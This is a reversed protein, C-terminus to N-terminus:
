WDILVLIKSNFHSSIGERKSKCWGLTPDNLLESTQACIQVGRHLFVFGAKDWHQAPVASHSLWVVVATCLKLLIPVSIDNLGMGLLVGLHARYFNFLTLCFVQSKTCQQSLRQFLGEFFSNTKGSSSSRFWQFASWNFTVFISCSYKTILYKTKQPNCEWNSLETGVSLDGSHKSGGM